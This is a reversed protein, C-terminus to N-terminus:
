YSDTYSIINGSKDNVDFMLDMYKQQWEPFQGKELKALSDEWMRLWEKETIKCDQLM